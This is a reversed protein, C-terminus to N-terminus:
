AWFKYWPPAAVVPAAVAAHSALLKAGWGWLYVGGLYTAYGIIGVIVVAMIQEVISLDMFSSFLRAIM